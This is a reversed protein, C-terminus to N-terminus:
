AKRKRERRRREWEAREEDSGSFEADEDSEQEEVPAPAAKRTHKADPREVVNVFDGANQSAYEHQRILDRLDPNAPDVLQVPTLGGKNRLRPSSGAELMMEVLARGFPRQAPPEANLWRIATHLPTDGELRNVPDCEFAPQDLLLDIIEDARGDAHAVSGDRKLCAAAPTASRSSAHASILLHPSRVTAGPPPRTTSTTAWSPPPATSCPRSRPTPSTPSCTPSSTPTTAAAPRSSSSRSPPARFLPTLLVDRGDEMFAPSAEHEEEAAMRDAEPHQNAGTEDDDDDDTPHVSSAHSVSHRTPASDVARPDDPRPNSAAPSTNIIHRRPLWPPTAAAVRRARSLPACSAYSPKRGAGPLAFGAVM